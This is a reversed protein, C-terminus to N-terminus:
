RLAYFLKISMDWEEDTMDTNDLEKYQDGALAVKIDTRFHRSEIKNTKTTRRRERRNTL